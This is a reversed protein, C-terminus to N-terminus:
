PVLTKEFTLKPSPIGGLRTKFNLLGFNPQGSVASTGLDLLPIDNEQCYQYLGKVLLVTPSLHNYPAAHDAYFNYLIRSTVRVSVSAAVLTDRFYVGLLLYRDPFLSITHQLDKLTMSLMYKKQSRCHHIFSYVEELRDNPVFSFYLEGQISKRLKRKELRNLAMSFDDHTHRISGVSAETVTYGLNFLFTHLLAGSGISYHMPPNKLIIKRVDASYLQTEVFQLFLYLTKGPIKDSCEVTGFPSKISANATTGSINLLLSAVVRERRIELAYYWKWGGACQLNLHAPHQFLSPEFGFTKIEGPESAHFTFAEL